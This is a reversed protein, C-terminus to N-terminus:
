LKIIELSPTKKKLIPFISERDDDKSFSILKINRSKIYYEIFNIYNCYDLFEPLNYIDDTIQQFKQQLSNWNSLTTMITFNYNIKQMQRIRRLFCNNTDSDNLCPLIMLIINDKKYPYYRGIHIPHSSFCAFAAVSQPYEKAFVSYDVSKAAKTIINNNFITKEENNDISSLMGTNTRRYWFGFGGLSLPKKHASLMDLWFRWDENYYMREIKYGGVDAWAKKRIAATCTLYNNKVMEKTAWKPHSLYHKEYFGVCWTFAFDVDSNFYVGFYLYELYTPSIVDDADLPIVFDTRANKFGTNRASSLGGNDQRIIKIRKDKNAYYHLITVDKNNTSGDDIIIWEFWPFTQNMVSNFTEEFFEGKNYFPTIITILADSPKVMNLEKNLKKGPSLSYDFHNYFYELSNIDYQKTICIFDEFSIIRDPNIGYLLLQEKIQIYNTNNTMICIYDFNYRDIENCSIIKKGYLTSGIKKENNDIFAIIDYFDFKEKRREFFLGTGFIYLRM